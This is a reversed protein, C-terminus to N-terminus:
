QEKAAEDLFGLLITNVPEPAELGMWHGVAHLCEFRSSGSVWARSALMQSKELFRDGDSFLGLVPAAVKGRGLPFLLGPNARYYNLAATLRGPRSLNAIWQQAEASYQVISRLLRWDGARLLTEAIGRLQFLLVYWGKTKQRLSARAYAEPHGVSLAAYREVREPRAIALHWCIVAGWDHGVLKVKPLGLRDLLAVLDGILAPIRYDRVRAPIASQGCGRMDPAIVRYGAAVLAPIQKRWVRHDDPFGHVLLVPPGSGQDLYAIEVGNVTVRRLTM